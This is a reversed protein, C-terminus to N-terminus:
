VGVISFFLTPLLNFYTKLVPGSLTWSVVMFYTALMRFRFMQKNVM